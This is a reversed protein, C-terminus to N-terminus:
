QRKFFVMPSAWHRSKVQRRTYNGKLRPAYRAEYTQDMIVYDATFETPANNEGYYAVQKFGGLIYPLPWTFASLVQIKLTNRVSPDIKGMETIENLPVMLERFTQGYIYLHGEQDPNEYAVDYTQYASVACGAIFLILVPWKLNSRKMWQSLWYAAVLIFTWYFSLVCWPTKYAVISYVLFLGFGTVSTLRLASPVKKLAFPVLLLGLMAFWELQTMLNLWYFWPKQHGNGKSGTESWLYFAYFFNKVGNPDQFFASYVLVVMTFGIAVVSLAGLILRKSDQEITLRREYVKLCGEAILLTVVFLIFNEKLCAMAGLTLGLGVVNTRTMGDERARLWYFFFGICALAFGMEHIAYRSFFVMAPSVALFFAAIWAGRSTLWRRFLFPTCTVMWGLVVTTWRMVVVDRGFLKEFAALFYFYLPGHYNQPDYIYFGRNMLGDVFWGNVAEDHHPPRVGLNFCHLLLLIVLLVIRMLM